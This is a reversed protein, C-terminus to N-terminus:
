STTLGLKLAILGLFDALQQFRLIKAPIKGWNLSIQRFCGSCLVGMVRPPTGARFLVSRTLPHGCAACSNAQVDLLHDYEVQTIGAARLRRTLRAERNRDSKRQKYAENRSDWKRGM